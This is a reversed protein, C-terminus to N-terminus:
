AGGVSLATHVDDGVPQLKLEGSYIKAIKCRLSIGPCVLQLKEAVPDTIFNGKLSSAPHGDPFLQLQLIVIQELGIEMAHRTKSGPFVAIEHPLPFLSNNLYFSRSVGGYKESIRRIHGLNLQRKGNLIESIVTRPAVDNLDSQRHGHQEM